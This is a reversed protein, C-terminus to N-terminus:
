KQLFFSVSFCFCVADSEKFSELSGIGFSDIPTRLPRNRPYLQLFRFAAVIEGGATIDVRDLHWEFM